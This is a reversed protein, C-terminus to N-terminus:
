DDLDAPNVLGELRAPEFEIGGTAPLSDMVDLLSRPPAGSTSLRHFDEIKM